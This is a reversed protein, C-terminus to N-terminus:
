SSGCRGCRCTGRACCVSGRLVTQVRHWEVALRWASPSGTCATGGCRRGCDSVWRRDVSIPRQVETESRAADRDRCDDERDHDDEDADRQRGRRRRAEATGALAVDGVHRLVLLGRVAVHVALLAVGLRAREEEERGLELRQLLRDGLEGAVVLLGDDAVHEVLRAAAAVGVVRQELGDALVADAHLWLCRMSAPKRQRRQWEVVACPLATGRPDRVYGTM